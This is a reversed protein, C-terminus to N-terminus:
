GRIHDLYEVYATCTFVSFKSTFIIGHACVSVKFLPSIKFFCIYLLLFTCQVGM